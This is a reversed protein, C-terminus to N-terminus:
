MKDNQKEWNIKCRNCLVKILVPYSIRRGKISPIAQLILSLLKLFIRPIWTSIFQREWHQIGLTLFSKTFVSCHTLSRHPRMQPKSHLHPGWSKRRCLKWYWLQPPGKNLPWNFICVSSWRRHDTSIICFIRQGLSPTGERRSSPPVGLLIEVQWWTTKWSSNRLGKPFVAKRGGHMVKLALLLTMKPLVETREALGGAVGRKLLAEQGPRYEAWWLPSAARRQTPLLGDLPHFTFFLCMFGM